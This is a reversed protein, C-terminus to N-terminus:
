RRRSALASEVVGLIDAVSASGKVLFADAGSRLAEERYEPLDHSTFVAISADLRAARLRRTLELGNGDPLRVDLFIVDPHLCEITDLAERVSAAKAVQAFPFRGKLFDHLDDRFQLNDEVILIGPKM